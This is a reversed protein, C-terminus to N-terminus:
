NDGVSMFAPFFAQGTPEHLLFGAGVFFYPVGDSVYYGAKQGYRFHPPDFSGDPFTRYEEPIISGGALSMVLDTYEANLYEGSVLAAWIKAMDAPAMNADRWAGSFRATEGGAINLVEDYDPQTTFSELYDADNDWSHTLVAELPAAIDAMPVEGSQVKRLVAIVSVIKGASASYQTYRPDSEVWHDCHQDYLAFGWTGEYGEMAFEVDRVLAEALANREDCTLPLPEPTATATTEAAISAELIPTPEPSPTPDPSSGVANTLVSAAFFTSVGVAIISAIFM